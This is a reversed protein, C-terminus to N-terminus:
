GYRSLVNRTRYTLVTILRPPTVYQYGTHLEKGKEQVREGRHKEGKTM